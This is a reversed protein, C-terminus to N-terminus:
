FSILIRQFLEKTIIGFLSKFEMRLFTYGLRFSINFIILPILLIYYQDIQSSDNSDIFLFNSFLIIALTALISGIVIIIITFIVLNSKKNEAVIKPFLRVLVNPWGLSFITGFIESWAVLIAILGIEERLLFNPQLFAINFYGIFIGLYILVAGISSQKKIIGM